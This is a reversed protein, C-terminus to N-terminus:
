RPKGMRRRALGAFGVGGLVLLVISSPEPAPTPSLEFVTGADSAGGFLTTGYLNGTGDMLLGAYPRAGNTGDFTALTTTVGSGQAVEYVTGYGFTGGAYATGYLNGANDLVVGSFPSFGTADFSALTTIFNTGHAVEFVTGVGNAGGVNATGYLNGAADMVVGSYPNAGNTTNFTALTTVVGSGHVIEFVTGANNAGGFTTTGYLNGSSDMMLGAYPNAGNTTNFTALTTVVGSGHVIEFVTGANNAGGSATTGYLNGSSDRILGAYPNAGNTTNFTALTTTVGSGQVVEFVTGVGNAGGSTSTGYLNGAGDMVVGGYSNAGSSSSSVALTTVAGSGQAVEFITGNNSAGGSNTAGYLNGSGDMVVGGYPNAGNTNNFTALTNLTWGAEVRGATAAVLSAAAFIALRRSHSRSSVLACLEMAIVKAQM